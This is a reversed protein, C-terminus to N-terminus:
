NDNLGSPRAAACGNEATKNQMACIDHLGPTPFLRGYLAPNKTWAM